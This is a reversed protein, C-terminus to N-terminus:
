LRFDCGGDGERKGAYAPTIRCNKLSNRPLFGKGRTHPPSGPLRCLARPSEPKEGRIRPHDESDQRPYVRSASKGAYAPTIGLRPECHYGSREKGRTHPPSGQKFRYIYFLLIKEGRIRPHDKQGSFPITRWSSKGAYAPTIRQVCIGFSRFFAKGRTHPPSGM